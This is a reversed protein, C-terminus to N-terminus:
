LEWFVTSDSEGTLELLYTSKYALNGLFRRNLAFSSTLVFLYSSLAQWIESLVALGNALHLAYFHLVLGQGLPLSSWHHLVGSLLVLSRGASSRLSRGKLQNM